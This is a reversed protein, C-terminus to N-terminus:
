IFWSSFHCCYCSQHSLSGAEIRNLFSKDGLQGDSNVSQITFNYVTGLVTPITAPSSVYNYMLMSTGDNVSINYSGAKQVADWSLIIGQSDTNSLVAFNQPAGTVTFSFIDNEFFIHVCSMFVYFVLFERITINQGNNGSSQGVVFYKVVVTVTYAQGSELNSVTTSIDTTSKTSEGPNVFNVCYASTNYFRWWSWFNFTM